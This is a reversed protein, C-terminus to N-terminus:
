AADKEIITTRPGAKEPFLQIVNSEADKEAQGLKKIVGTFVGQALAFTLAANVVVNVLDTPDLTAWSNAVAVDLLFTLASTLVTLGGLLALKVGSATFKATVLGVLRPLLYTLALQILAVWPNHFDFVPVGEM